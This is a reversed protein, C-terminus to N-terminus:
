TPLIIKSVIFHQTQNVKIKVIYNRLVVPHGRWPNKDWKTGCAGGM